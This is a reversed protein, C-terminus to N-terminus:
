FSLQRSQLVLQICCLLFRNLLLLGNCSKLFLTLCDALLRYSFWSRNSILLIRCSNLLQRTHKCFHCRTLSSRNHLTHCQLFHCKKETVHSCIIAHTNHLFHSWLCCGI